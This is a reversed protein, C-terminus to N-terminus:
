KKVGSASTDELVKMVKATYEEQTIAGADRLDKLAKLLADRQSSAASDANSTADPEASSTANVNVDMRNVPLVNKLRLDFFLAPRGKGKWNCPDVEKTQSDGGAGEPPTATVQYAGTRSWGDPSNLLGVWSKKCELEITTPTRGMSYGNVDIPANTPDSTVDFAVMSSSSCGVCALLLLIISYRVVDGITPRAAIPWANCKVRVVHKLLPRPQRPGHKARVTVVTVM